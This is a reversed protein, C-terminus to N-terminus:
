GGTLLRGPVRLEGSRIQFLPKVVAVGKLSSQYRELTRIPQSRFETVARLFRFLRIARDRTGEQDEVTPLRVISMQSTVGPGMM